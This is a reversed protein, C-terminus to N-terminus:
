IKVHFRELWKGFCILRWPLFSFPRRGSIMEELVNLASGSLIGDSTEIAKGLESRFLQPDQRQIWTQEPTAFGLKDKRLRVKEPLIGTMAERLVRKTIGNKLKYEEPLGLSFEVLRFDLFPVRAEISFSMSNRDEWHLLMPLSSSSLQLLSLELVSGPKEGSLSLPNRARAGMRRLDLWSPDLEAGQFAHSILRRQWAPLILSATDRM